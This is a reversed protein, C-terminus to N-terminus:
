IKRPFKHINTSGWGMYLEAASPENFNTITSKGKFIEWSFKGSQMIRIVHEQMRPLVQETISNNSHCSLLSVLSAWVDSGHEQLLWEM